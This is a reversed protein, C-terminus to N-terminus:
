RNVEDATISCLRVFVDVVRGRELSTGYTDAHLCEFDNGILTLETADFEVTLLGDVEDPM